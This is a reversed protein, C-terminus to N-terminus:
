VSGTSRVPEAVPIRNFHPHFSRLGYCFPCDLSFQM